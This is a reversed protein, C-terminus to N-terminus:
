AECCCNKRTRYHQQEHMNSEIEKLRSDIRIVLASAKPLPRLDSAVTVISRLLDEGTFIGASDQGAAALSMEVGAADDGKFYKNSAALSATYSM